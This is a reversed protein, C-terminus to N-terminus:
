KDDLVSVISFQCGLWIFYISVSDLNITCSSLIDDGFECYEVSLEWTYQCVGLLGEFPLYMNIWPAAWNQKGVVIENSHKDLCYIFRTCLRHTYTQVVVKDDVGYPKRSFFYIFHCDVSLMSVMYKLSFLFIYCPPPRPRLPPLVDKKKISFWHGSM